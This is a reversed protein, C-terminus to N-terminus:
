VYYSKGIRKAMSEGLFIKLLFLYKKAFGALNLVKFTHGPHRDPLWKEYNANKLGNLNNQTTKEAV